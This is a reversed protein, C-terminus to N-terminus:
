FDLRLTKVEKKLHNIKLEIKMLENYIGKLVEGVEKDEKSKNGKEIMKILDDKMVRLNNYASELSLILNKMVGINVKQERLEKEFEEQPLDVLRGLLSMENM